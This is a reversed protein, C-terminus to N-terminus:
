ESEDDRIIATVSSSDSDLVSQGLLRGGINRPNIVEDAGVSGLKDVHKQETAAAVVRVDPNVNKVALVSLVDAADDNSGVVVGSATDVRADELVTEDTPDETLVNVGEADLTAATDPDRTVVVLDTEDALEELLSETVDGYGLVVVHDELLTLESATMNGFATAMRSEIAPVVLAGIAATFAGTGFVIVSLSFWKAVPTTPTIDGYGVTAITVVVYYVADGWTDLELFQGQLGYAGMTGYLLVGVIASMSAIQLPSLDVSQEFRDRNLVLLPVTILIVLLLPIDTTQLTTLPLLALAPLLVVAVLWAIRKRRQLGVTVLGLVFAFLVGGFRAFARARPLIGALPGELAVVPQSLTSLGTVFALLTVVGTLVVTPKAGSFEGWEVFPIREAPYFVEELARGERADPRDVV